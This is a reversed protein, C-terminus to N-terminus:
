FSCGKNRLLFFVSNSILGEFDTGVRVNSNGYIGGFIRAFVTLM